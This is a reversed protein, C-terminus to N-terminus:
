QAKVYITERVYINGMWRALRSSEAAIYAGSDIMDQYETRSPTTAETLPPSDALYDVDLEPNSGYFYRQQEIIPINAWDDYVPGTSSGTNADVLFFDRQMKALANRSFRDRGTVATVNIGWVGIFGIFNYNYNGAPENYTDPVQAYTRTWRVVGCGVDTLASEQVLLYDTYAPDDHPTNLPLPAWDERLQMFDQTLVYAVAVGPFPESVKPQDIAEAVTFDGSIYLRSM